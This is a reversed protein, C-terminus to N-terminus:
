VKKLPPTERCIQKYLRESQEVDNKWIYFKKFWGALGPNKKVNSEAICIEIKKLIKRFSKTYTLGGLDDTLV